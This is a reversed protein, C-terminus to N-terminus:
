ILVTTRKRRFVRMLFENYSVKMVVNDNSKKQQTALGDQMEKLESM